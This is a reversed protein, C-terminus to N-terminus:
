GKSYLNVVNAIFSSPRPVLHLNVANTTILSLRVRILITIRRHLPRSNINWADCMEIVRSWPLSTSDAQKSWWRAVSQAGCCSHRDFRGGCSLCPTASSTLTWVHRTDKLEIMRAHWCRAIANVSINANWKCIKVLWTYILLHCNWSLFSCHLILLISVVFGWVWFNSLICGGFTLFALSRGTKSFIGSSRFIQLSM